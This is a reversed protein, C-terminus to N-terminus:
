REIEIRRKRKNVNKSSNINNAKWKRWLTRGKIKIKWETWDEKISLIKIYAM